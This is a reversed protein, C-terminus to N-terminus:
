DHGMDETLEVALLAANELAADAVLAIHRRSRSRSSRALGNSDRAIGVSKRYWPSGPREVSATSCHVRRLGRVTPSAERMGPTVGAAM